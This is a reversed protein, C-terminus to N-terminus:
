RFRSLGGEHLHLADRSYYRIVSDQHDNRTCLLPNVKLGTIEELDDITTTDLPCVMGVTLLKGLQDIPFVEREVAFEEPVLSLVSDNIKCKKLAISPMGQRGLFDAFEKGSMHGLKILAEATRGGKKKQRKLADDLQHKEIIGAEVMMEGIRKLRDPNPETPDDTENDEGPNSLVLTDTLAPKERPKKRRDIFGSQKKAGVTEVAESTEIKSEFEAVLAQPSPLAPVAGSPQRAQAASEASADIETANKAVVERLAQTEKVMDIRELRLMDRELSVTDLEVTAQEVDAQLAEMARDAAENETELRAIEEEMSLVHGYLVDAEATEVRTVALEERLRAIEEGYRAALADVYTFEDNLREFEDLMVSQELSIEEPSSDGAELQEKIQVLDAAIKKRENEAEVWKGRAEQLDEELRSHDDILADRLTRMVSVHTQLQELQEATGDERAEESERARIVDYLENRVAKLEESLSDRETEAEERAQLVESLVAHYSDLERAVADRKRSAQHIQRKAEDLNRTTELSTDEGSGASLEANEIFAELTQDKAEALGGELTAQTNMEADLESEIRRASEIGSEGGTDILAFKAVALSNRLSEIRETTEKIRCNTEREFARRFRIADVAILRGNEDCYEQLLSRLYDAQGSTYMLLSDLQRCKEEHSLEEWPTDVGDVPPLTVMAKCTRCRGGGGQLADPASLRNGCHPCDFRIVESDGLRM